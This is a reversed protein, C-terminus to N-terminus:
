CHAHTETSEQSIYVLITNKYINYVLVGQGDVTTIHISRFFIEKCYFIPLVFNLLFYTCIYM